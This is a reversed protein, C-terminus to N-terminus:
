RSQELIKQQYDLGLKKPSFLALGEKTRWQKIAPRMYIDVQKGLNDDGNNLGQKTKADVVCIFDPCTVLVKQNKLLVLYENKFLVDYIDTGDEIRLSGETFGDVEKKGDATVEGQAVFTFDSSLKSEFDKCYSVSEATLCQTLQQKVMPYGLVFVNSASMDAFNRIILELSEPSESSKMLMLDGANNGFVLPCRELQALTVLEIYIEPVSRLGVLDGDLIPVGLSSALEFAMALSYPGIEVPVIARVKKGLNQELLRLGRKIAAKDCAPKTLGGAGYATIVIDDVALDGANILEISQLSAVAKMASDYRGGGGTGLITSAQLIDQIAQKNLKM